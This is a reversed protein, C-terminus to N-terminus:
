QQRVYEYLDEGDRIILSDADLKVMDYLATEEEDGGGERVLSIELKGNHISWSKYILTTQDIGEVVGGERISMGVYSSGDLPNLMVWDGMLTTENIVLSAETRQENALVAVRDGVVYGGFVQMLEKANAVSLNLTDGSDAIVQLTNMASAEGCVGFITYNRNISTQISDGEDFSAQTKKGGCSAMALIAAMGLAFFLPRCMNNYIFSNKKRPSNM